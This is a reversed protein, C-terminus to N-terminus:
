MLPPKCIGIPAYQFAFTAFPNGVKRAFLSPLFPVAREEGIRPRLLRVISLLTSCHLLVCMVHHERAKHQERVTIQEEPLPKRRDHEEDEPVDEEGESVDEEGELVDEDLEPVGDGDIEFLDAKYWCLV